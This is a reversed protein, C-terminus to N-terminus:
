PWVEELVRMVNGGTVKRIEEDSYGQEVLCRPINESCQTPNELGRVHDVERFGDGGEADRESTEGAGDDADERPGSRSDDISLEAAYTRHLGVHDGYVTDPGFAVHDIGVRDAIYEFHQMTSEISHVPRERTVTTHPAAEVGIVGGSAAVADLVEDPALRNSDWLARAGIHTLVVPDGSAEVTELTTRDGAHSCDVLMGLRNMREVARRGLATLGGDRSEKLGSGLANAESYTVGLCRVGLGFLQDIRDLENEIMAAGELHAVWGVKGERRARRVDEVSRCPLVGDQHALDCLRMGLDHIVDEWQWGAHSRIQCLGDLMGDFVLDWRSAALGRYATAIRGERVYDPTLDVPDPFLAAHDHLSVMLAEDALREVRAEQEEDLPILEGPARGLEEALPFGRYDRGEELYEFSRYEPGESERSM